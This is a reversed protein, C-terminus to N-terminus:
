AKAGRKGAIVITGSTVRRIGSLPSDVLLAGDNAIGAGIGSVQGVGTDITIERGQLWDYESWREAVAALGSSEFEVFAKLLHTTLYGALKELKPPAPCIMKLDVVQRAWDTETGFDITDPLDVNVGIGTVVTVARGSKPQVETLIGGLKGNLAVLDNPWKLEVGAAGLEELADIAGLGLRLTLSPLNEPQREFTYAVSMCLGSGPPSQWTKGHRGRGNTQNSTAAIKATGPAPGPSQMLYSNTSDIEALVEIDALKKRASDTAFQRIREADLSTM